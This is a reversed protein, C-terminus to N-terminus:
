SRPESGTGMRAIYRLARLGPLFFYAGGRVTIFHPLGSLRRPLKDDRPMSFDGTIPCDGVASRNGLLPDSEDTLGNFKTNMLWANQVFEFQRGINACLCAFHLGRPGEGAAAPQLAQEPTLKTGYERGRRLLRHFRTSAMLDDHFGPRPIGLKSFLQAVAGEPHGFLDANRPNARRIHAGFPCQTGEPDGDFTFGNAPEGPKDGDGSIKQQTSATLPAGDVTRGVMAAGLAYREPQKGSATHDLFQWFSRVDQELQRLVLYTGNRGFDKFSPQDEARALEDAPDETSALLPRDTYKGYENPYGLLVEGLAVRNNYETTTGKAPRERKWDFEPQSIGDAFGFPEHGGMDSTKLTTITEFAATWADNQVAEIWRALNDKAYLLAVVHIDPGPGGWLWRSPDSQGIDGLRRTRSTEGAMGSLFEASFASMVRAPVGVAELGARTFAVQLATEPPPQRFEATSVPATGLWVRAAAANRIRLLFYSAETLKSYGFAVLGQIDSYDVPTV